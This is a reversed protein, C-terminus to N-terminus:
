SVVRRKKGNERDRKEEHLKIKKKKIRRGTRRKAHVIQTLHRSEIWLEPYGPLNISSIVSKISVTKKIAHM